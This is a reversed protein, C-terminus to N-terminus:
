SQRTGGPSPAQDPDPVGAVLSEAGDPTTGAAGVEQRETLARERAELEAHRIALAAERAAIAAERAALAADREALASEPEEDDASPPEPRTGDPLVGAAALVSPEAFIGANYARVALAIADSPRCSIIRRQGAQDLELQAFYHREEQVGTIVVRDLRAGLIAVTSVFLDWTSPRGPVDGHWGALIARTEAPGIIIRLSRYPSDDETLVVM